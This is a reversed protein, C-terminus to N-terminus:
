GAAFGLGYRRDMNAREGPVHERPRPASRTLLISCVRWDYLSVDWRYLPPFAAGVVRLPQDSQALSWLLGSPHVVEASRFLVAGARSLTAKVPRAIWLWLPRYYEGSRLLECKLWYTM